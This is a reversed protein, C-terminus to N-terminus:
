SMGEDSSALVPEPARPEPPQQLSRLRAITPAIWDQATRLRQLEAEAEGAQHQRREQATAIAARTAELAEELHEDFWGSFRRFTEDINQLTAWRLNEINRAVLSEVEIALRRRARARAASVPLLRDILGGALPLLTDQWRQTVWYPERAAVFNEAAGRSAYPIDFLQAANKRVAGIVEEARGVHGSLTEDLEAAIKGAATELADQFFQPIAQAILVKAAEEAKVATRAKVFAVEVLALLGTRAVSRLAEARQEVAQRMRKHDGALLDAAVGRQREIDAIADRFQQARAALDDIPMELARIRLAADSHALELIDTAKQAIASRLIDRKAKLLTETLHKEIAGLGSSEIAADDQDLKAALANRASLEFIPHEAFAPSHSRLVKLLFATADGREAPALYDMKNLVFLIPSIGTRVRDLYDLEAATIPPDVSVVFFAADCEPLVGVATDTNHRLTSGIGPTDILEIGSALVPTPFVVEVRAVRAQNHPNGEETVYRRLLAATGQLDQGSIAQTRQGDLYSVTIQYDRGWRLFTPIATLPVVGSPLLDCGLLANLLTSKGRKFQGLVAVRLRGASLRATLEKLRNAHSANPPWHAGLYDSAMRLLSLLDDSTSEGAAQRLSPSQSAAM